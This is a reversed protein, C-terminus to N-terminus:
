ERGRCLCPTLPRRICRDMPSPVSLELIPGRQRMPRSTPVFSRPVADTSNASMMIRSNTITNPVIWNPIAKLLNLTYVPAARSPARYAATRHWGSEEVPHVLASIAAFTVEVATPYEMPGPEGLASMTQLLELM